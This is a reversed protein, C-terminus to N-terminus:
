LGINNITKEFSNKYEEMKKKKKNVLGFGGFPLRSRIKELTNNYMTFEPGFNKRINEHTQTLSALDSLFKQSSLEKETNFDVFKDNYNNLEKKYNEVSLNSISPEVPRIQKLYNLHKDILSKNKKKYIDDISDKVSYFAEILDKRNNVTNDAMDGVVKTAGIIGPIAIEVTKMISLKKPKNLVRQLFDQKKMFLKDTLSRKGALRGFYGVAVKEFGQQYFCHQLEYIKNM